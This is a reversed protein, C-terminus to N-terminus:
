RKGVLHYRKCSYKYANVVPKGKGKGAQGDTLGREAGEQGQWLNWPSFPQPSVRTLGGIPQRNSVRNQRYM